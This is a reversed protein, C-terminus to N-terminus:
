PSDPRGHFGRDFRLLRSRLQEGVSVKAVGASFQQLVRSEEGFGILALEGVELRELARSITAIAEAGIGGLGDGDNVKFQRHFSM